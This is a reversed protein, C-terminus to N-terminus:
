LTTQKAVEHYPIVWNLLAYASLGAIKKRFFATADYTGITLPGVRLSLGPQLWQGRNASLRNYILPLGIAYWKQEYRASIYLNTQEHVAFRNNKNNTNIAAGGTIYFNPSLLWDCQMTILGPLAILFNANGTNPPFDVTLLSDLQKSSNLSLYRYIDSQTLDITLDYYNQQKKFRIGGIDILALSAKLKYHQSNAQQTKEGWEYSLGIDWAMQLSTSHKLQSIPFPSFSLSNSGGESRAYSINGKFYSSTDTTSLLFDTTPAYFFTSQLGKTLKFTLGAYLRHSNSNFIQLAYNFGYEFWNLRSARLNENKHINNQLLSLDLEKYFLNALDQSIGDINTYQRYSGIIAFANRENFQFYVSPLLSRQSIQMAYPARKGSPNFNKYINDPVNPTLNKWSDPLKPYAIASKNVSLFSNNFNIEQGTLAVDLKVKKGISGAPNALISYIGGYNGTFYGFQAFASNKAIVLLWIFVIRKLFTM